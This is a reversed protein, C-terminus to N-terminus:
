LLGEKWEPFLRQANNCFIAEKAEKPIDAGWVRFAAFHPTAYPFYSGFVVHMKGSLEWLDELERFLVLNHSELYFNDHKRMLAFYERAHYLLKVDHGEVILNLKPHRSLIADMERFSVQDQWVMLPLGLEELEELIKGIAYEEMSHEFNRPFMRVARFGEAMLDRIYARGGGDFCVDTTLVMAGYWGPCDKLLRRLRENGAYNDLTAAQVDTVIGGRIGEAECASLMERFDTFQRLNGRSLPAWWVNCDFVEARNLGQRYAEERERIGEM